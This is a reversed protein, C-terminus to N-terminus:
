RISTMVSRENTAERVSRGGNLGQSPSDDPHKGPGHHSHDNSQATAGNGIPGTGSLSLTVTRGVLSGWATSTMGQM